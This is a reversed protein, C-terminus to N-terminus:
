FFNKIGSDAIMLLLNEQNIISMYGNDIYIGYLEKNESFRPVDSYLPTLGSKLCGARCISKYIAKIEITPAVIITAGGYNFKFM